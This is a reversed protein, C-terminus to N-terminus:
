YINLNEFVVNGYRDLKTGQVYTKYCIIDSKTYIPIVPVDEDLQEICKSYLENQIAKDKLINSSYILSDYNLSSYGYYNYPSDSCWLELFAMPDNYNINYEGIYIDYCGNNIVSDIEDESYGDVEFNISVSKNNGSDQKLKDNIVKLISETMKKNNGDEIYAVKILDGSIYKSSKLLQYSNDQYNKDINSVFNFSSGSPFYSTSKRGYYSINKDDKYNKDLALSITKRFNVDSVATKSKFNFFVCEVSFTNYVQAENNNILRETETIPPNLFVDINNQTEFSALAFESSKESLDLILKNSKINEKLIYYENKELTVKNNFFEEIKYPGSYVINRYKKKWDALNDDIKRLNYIPQSLMHLFFTSQYNLRIELINKSPASIAIQSSDKTGKIYDTVGYICKLENRYVSNYNLSLLKIFFDCFDQATIREGNSWKIDDKLTFTYVLGDSSMDCKKALVYEINGTDDERVLGSFLSMSFNKLNGAGKDVKSLDSPLEGISYVLNAPKKTSVDIEKNEKKEICGSFMVITLSIFVALVKKFNRMNKTIRVKIIKVYIITEM